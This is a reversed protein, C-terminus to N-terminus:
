GDRHDIGRTPNILSNKEGESGGKRAAASFGIELDAGPCFMKGAGTLIVVKVRDDADVLRYVEVLSRQMEETFANNKGPRDLAILIVPTAAQSTEPVHSVHIHQFNLTM